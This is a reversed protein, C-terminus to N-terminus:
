DARSRRRLGAAALLGGCLLAGPGVAALAARGNRGDPDWWRRGELRIPRDGHGILVFAAWDRVAHTASGERMELKARRLALAPPLGSALGAYFSEMLSATAADEVSWLSALVSRAGAAVFARALGQEGEGGVIRGRTTQCASLVVLDCDVRLRRIEFAHLLGDETAGPRGAAGASLLLASRDPRVTSVLGHAAMHVIRFQDPLLQKLRAESADAGLDIESRASVIRRVLEAERASYPLEPIRLGEDAYVALSGRSSGGAEGNERLSEPLVPAALMLLDRRADVDGSRPEDLRVMTGASPVYSVAYRDLVLRGGDPSSAEEGHLPLTEFPVLHLAGDPVIIVHDTTVPLHALLPDLIERALRAAVNRAAEEDGSTLLQVYNEVRRGLARPDSGLTVPRVREATVVFAILGGPGAMYSLLADNPGLAGRVSAASPPRPAPDHAGGLSELLVRARGRELAEFARAADEDRGSREWRRVLGEVLHQYVELHKQLYTSRFEESAISRRISEIADVAVGYELIAEDLRGLKMQADGMVAHLSWTEGTPTDGGLALGRRAWELTLEPDSELHLWGVAAYRAARESATLTASISLAREAVAVADDRRGLAALARSLTALAWPRQLTLGRREVIESAEELIPLAREPSGAELYLGGLRMLAHHVHWDDMGRAMALAPLYADLARGQDGLFMYTGGLNLLASLEGAVDGQEIFLRRAEELDDLSEEFEGQYKRAIGVSKLAAAEGAREGHERSLALAEEYRQRATGFETRYFDVDGRVILAFPGQAVDAATRSVAIAEDASRAAADLDDREIHADSLSILAAALAHADGAARAQTVERELAASARSPDELVLAASTEDGRATGLCPLM